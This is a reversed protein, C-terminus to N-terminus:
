NNKKDDNNMQGQCSSQHTSHQAMQVDRAQRRREREREKETDIKRETEKAVSERAEIESGRSSRKGAIVVQDLQRWCRTIVNNPHTLNHCLCVCKNQESVTGHRHFAKSCPCFLLLCKLM